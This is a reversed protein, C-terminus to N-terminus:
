VKVNILLWKLQRWIVTYNLIKTPEIKKIIASIKWKRWYRCTTKLRYLFKQPAWFKYTAQNFFLLFICSEMFYPTQTSNSIFSVFITQQVTIHFPMSCPINQKIRPKVNRKFLLIFINITLHDTDWTIKM